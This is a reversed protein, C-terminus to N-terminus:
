TGTTNTDESASSETSGPSYQTSPSSLDTGTPETDDILSDTTSGSGTEDSDTDTTLDDTSLTETSGTGSRAILDDSSLTSDTDDILTDTTSGSGTEDSDTDTTLDDTSLTETSGTGSGLTILDNSSLTSDSDTFESELESTAWGSGNEDFEHCDSVQDGAQLCMVRRLQVGSGCTKDCASWPGTFWQKPCQEKPIECTKTVNYKTQGACRSDDVKLVSAGDFLGCFVKRSQLGEGCNSWQTAYWQVECAPLKTRDCAEQTSPTPHHDCFSSDKVEHNKNACFATRTRITSLCSDCGNWPSVVWDIGECPKLMCPQEEAPREDECQDDGLVTIRRGTKQYCVVQRSQKGEDCLMNCPKWPGTFWTPCTANENCTQFLEPKPGLLEFCEKEAVISPYGNSIIKQCSVERSRSGGKGCRKSCQGWAGPVWQPDCAQTNCSQNTPPRLGDDCLGDDVVELEERSRCTVTRTQFGGGCNTSCPTFEDHVWNYRKNQRPAMDTPLSYEYEIGVNEDQLLLTRRSHLPEAPLRHPLYTNKIAGATFLNRPFDIHYTHIRVSLYLPENTPGLCRLKDPAAFGQQSREYSWLAGAIFLNRPFDIHYDGNLYFTGNKARLSERCNDEKASSGLMMDCGVPQWTGNVCVDFSDDNCRTGDIVEAKHRYYFREAHPMCNLECPNPARQCTGNVCVDFSDDNCRTGDIVEAKHRYYFREAHPMCNLECPNPARQCTGNVCVDFSDDNCRTGDIVEAKHRYYFREAHPMCNLQIQYGQVAPRRVGLVGRGQFEQLRSPLGADPVLLVQNYKIDRFLQDDYESCQEARFDKSGAPCDQT